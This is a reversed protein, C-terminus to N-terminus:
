DELIIHLNVDNMAFRIDQFDLVDDCTIDVVATDSHAIVNWIKVDDWTLLEDRITLLNAASGQVNYIDVNNLEVKSNCSDLLNFVLFILHM